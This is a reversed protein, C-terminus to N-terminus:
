IDCFFSLPTGKCAGTRDRSACKLKLLVVHSIYSTKTTLMERAQLTILIGSARSAKAIVKFPILVRLLCDFSLLLDLYSGVLGSPFARRVDFWNM